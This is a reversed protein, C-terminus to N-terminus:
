RMNSSSRSSTTADLPFSPHTASVTAVASPPSRYSLCAGKAVLEEHVRVLNGKCAAYLELIEDRYPEAKEARAISPVETSDCQIVDRVAGRSVGLLKAIRRTGIGRGHLELITRRASQDLM